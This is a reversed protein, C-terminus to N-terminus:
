ECSGTVVTGKGLVVLENPLGAKYPSGVTNNVGVVCDKDLVTRQVTAGSCIRCRDLIVSDIVTAGPEVIVRPSLVSGIVTGSIKCGPAILSGSIRGTDAVWAPPCDSLGQSDPNTLIRCTSVSGRGAELMKIHAEYWSSVPRLYEWRDRFIYGFVKGKAVLAPIVEDYLQCTRGSVANTSVADELVEAKFAYVTMSVLNSCPDVAKERYDIVRGHTDLKCTGFQTLDVGDIPKFAMTVDADSQRHFKILPRYDMRYAHDGSIVLVDRAKYRRIFALNKYIAGATGRYWSMDGEGEYPPLFVLTRSRGNYEWPRGIGVHDMLSSSRYQTLIGVHDVRSENLNTLPFDIIRYLGGFPVAAMSRSETLAGMSDPQGGALVMAVVNEM